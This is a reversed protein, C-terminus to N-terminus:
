SQFGRLGKPKSQLGKSCPVVAQIVILEVVSWKPQSCVDLNRSKPERFEFHGREIRVKFVTGYAGRGLRKPVSYPLYRSIQYDRCFTGSVLTVGVFLFQLQFFTNADERGFLQQAFEEDLPLDADTKGCPEELFHLEFKGLMSLNGFALIGLLILCLGPQATIRDLDRQVDTDTATPHIVIRLVNNHLRQDSLIERARGNPLFRVPESYKVEGQTPTEVRVGKVAANNVLAKFLEQAADFAHARGDEM